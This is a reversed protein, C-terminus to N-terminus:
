EFYNVSVIVNCVGRELKVKIEGLTNQMCEENRKGKQVVTEVNLHMPVTSKREREGSYFYLDSSCVYMCM